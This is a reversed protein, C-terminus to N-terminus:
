WGTLDVLADCHPDDPAPQHREEERVLSPLSAILATLMDALHIDAGIIGNGGPHQVYLRLRSDGRMLFGILFPNEDDVPDSLARLISLAQGQEPEPAPTINEPHLRILTMGMTSSIDDSSYLQTGALTTRLIRPIYAPAVTDHPIEYLFTAAEDDDGAHIAIRVAGPAPLVGRLYCGEALPGNLYDLLLRSIAAQQERDEPHTM